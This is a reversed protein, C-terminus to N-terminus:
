HTYRSIRELVQTDQENAKAEQLQEYGTQGGYRGLAIVAAMRVNRDKNQLLPAIENVVDEGRMETYSVVVQPFLKDSTKIKAFLTGLTDIARDDDRYLALCKIARARTDREVRADQSIEVLDAVVDGSYKRLELRSAMFNKSELFNQVREASDTSAEAQAGEPLYDASATACFGLTLTAFTALILTWHKM